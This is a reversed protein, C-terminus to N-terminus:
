LQSSKRVYGDACPTSMSVTLVQGYSVKSAPSSMKLLVLVLDEVVVLKLERLGLM